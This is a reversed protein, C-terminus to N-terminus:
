RSFGSVLEVLPEWCGDRKLRAAYAIAARRRDHAPVAEVWTCPRGYKRLLADMLSRRTYLSTRPRRISDLLMKVERWESDRFGNRVCQLGALREELVPPPPEVHTGGPSKQRLLFSRPAMNRAFELPREDTDLSWVLLKTVVFLSGSLVGRVAANLTVAPPRVDIQGCSARQFVSAWAARASPYAYVWSLRVADLRRGDPDIRGQEATRMTFAGRELYPRMLLEPGFPSLLAQRLRSSSGFLSLILLQAPILLTFRGVRAEYVAQEGSAFTPLGFARMYDRTDACRLQELPLSVNRKLITPGPAKLEPLLSNFTGCEVNGSRMDRLLLKLSGNSWETGCAWQHPTLYRIRPM